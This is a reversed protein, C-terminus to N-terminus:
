RFIRCMRVRPSPRFNAICTQLCNGRLRGRWRLAPVYFYGHWADKWLLAFENSDLTNVNSLESSYSSQCFDYHHHHHSKRLTRLKGNWIQEHEKNLWIPRDEYAVNMRPLKNSLWKELKQVQWPELRVSFAYNNGTHDIALKDLSVQQWPKLVWWNTRFEWIHIPFFHLM